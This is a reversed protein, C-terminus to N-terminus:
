AIKTNVIVYDYNPITRRKAILYRYQNKDLLRLFVRLYLQNCTYATASDVPTTVSPCVSLCVCLSHVM